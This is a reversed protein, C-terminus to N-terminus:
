EDIVDKKIHLIKVNPKGIFSSRDLPTILILQDNEKLAHDVLHDAAIKRTSEDCFVDFEDV